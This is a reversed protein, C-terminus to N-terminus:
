PQERWTRDLPVLHLLFFEDVFRDALETSAEDLETRLPAGGAAAWELFLLGGPKLSVLDLRHLIRSTKIRTLSAHVRVGLRLLPDIGFPGALATQPTDVVLVTDFGSRDAGQEIFELRADTRFGRSRAIALAIKRGLDAEALVSRLIATGAEVQERPPTKVGGYIAGTLAALPLCAVGAGLSGAIWILGGIGGGAGAGAFVLTVEADVLMGLLSGRVMGDCTGRPPTQLTECAPGVAYTVAVRGFESRVSEGPPLPLVAPQSRM